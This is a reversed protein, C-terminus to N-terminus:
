MGSFSFRILTQGTKNKAETKHGEINESGIVLFNCLM